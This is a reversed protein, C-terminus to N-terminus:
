VRERCSARGIQYSEIGDSGEPEIFVHHSKQTPFKKVKDEISPCYRPGIGSIAGGYLASLHMNKRIIEHTKENTKTIYCPYKDEVHLENFEYLYELEQAPQRELKSFDISSTLLRPPTGTKLRLFPAEMAQSISESLGIAPVEGSRGAPYRTKGIHIVGNLFTGTTVVVCSANFIDGSSTKVGVVQKKGNITQTILDSGMGEYIDLNPVQSLIQFATKSYTFKDIQLRLGQVAPGKSTNLMRAQLYTKTCLQPMIGGMASIEFVIHGKGLGGISPNCPMTAIKNKDLTILLTRSNMKASIYAAEIGAHGGGIVIVDYNKNM